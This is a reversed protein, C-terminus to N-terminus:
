VRPPGRRVRERILAIADSTWPDEWGLGFRYPSVDEIWWNVGVAAYQAVMDADHATDTGSTAGGGVVDFATDVDRHLGIYGLVQRWDAPTRPASLPGPIAGDWRAARRMPPKNPWWGGVWIPIRPTQVPRPLFKMEELQYHEGEFKFLEGSWLGTLVTLGEDLMSARQKADIPEGFFGYEWTVPDGIGVGLILRGGSLNDISVTERALKWPRRRPLPTVLTGLRITTTAVAVAALGVWPDVMPHWSPDFLIHDWIFFGDWGVTEAERALEALARAHGFEGFPPLNIGFRM